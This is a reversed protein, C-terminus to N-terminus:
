TDTDTPEGLFERVMTEAEPKTLSAHKALEIASDAPMGHDHVLHVALWASARNGSSCHLLIKQGKYQGVLKTIAAVAGADLGTDGPVIPINYYGIGLANVAAEEDWDIEDAGRLNIVAAVGNERAEILAAEDPQGSIYLHKVGVVNKMAGWTQPESFDASTIASTKEASAPWTVSFAGRIDGEQYGRARDFPYQEDLAARIDDSLASGHCALCVPGTRIAKMYHTTGDPVQEFYELPASADAGASQTEFRALVEAQWPEPANAPNRFRLSTRSVNAGSHRSLESAIQPAVDKCVGIAATPGGESMGAVLESKLRSGFSKTISRSETLLAEDAGSDTGLVTGGILLLVFIGAVNVFTRYSVKREKRDQLNM